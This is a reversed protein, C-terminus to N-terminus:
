RSVVTIVSEQMYYVSLSEVSWVGAFGEGLPEGTTATCAAGDTRIRVYGEEVYLEMETAGAARNYTEVATALQTDQFSEQEAKSGTVQMRLTGTASDYVRKFFDPIRM